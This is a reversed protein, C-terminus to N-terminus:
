ERSHPFGSLEEYLDRWDPNIEEITKLKWSRRWKKIQKERLIASEAGECEEFWVLQDVGYKRTFGETLKEKHQYIRKELDSTVGTYLTGNRKNALIYVFFRKM